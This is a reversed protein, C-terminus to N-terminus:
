SESVTDKSEPSFHRKTVDKLKNSNRVLFHKTIILFPDRVESVQNSFSPNNLNQFREFVVSIVM